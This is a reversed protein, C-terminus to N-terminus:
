RRRKAAKAEAKKQKNWKDITILVFPIPTSMLDKYSWHFESTCIYNINNFIDEINDKNGDVLNKIRKQFDINM